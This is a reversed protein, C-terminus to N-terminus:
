IGMWPQHGDCRVLNASDKSNQLFRCPNLFCSIRFLSLATRQSEQSWSAAAALRQPWSSHSTKTGVLQAMTARWSVTYNDRHGFIICVATGNPRRLRQACRIDIATSYPNAYALLITMYQNLAQSLWGRARSSAWTPCSNSNPDRISARSNKTFGSCRDEAHRANAPARNPPHTHLLFNGFLSRRGPQSDFCAYPANSRGDSRKTHGVAVSKCKISGTASCNAGLDVRRRRSNWELRAFAQVHRRSM